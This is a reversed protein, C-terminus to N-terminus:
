SRISDKTDTICKLEVLAASVAPGLKLSGKGKSKKHVLLIGIPLGIGDLLIVVLSIFFPISIISIAVRKVGRARKESQAAPLGVPDLKVGSYLAAFFAPVLLVAVSIWTRPLSM